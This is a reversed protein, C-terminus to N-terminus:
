PQNATYVVKNTESIVMVYKQTVGAVYGHRSAQNCLAAGGAVATWACTVNNQTHTFTVRKDNLQGFGSSHEPQNRLFRIKGTALEVIVVPQSVVTILGTGDAKICLSSGGLETRWACTVHDHTVKYTFGSTGAGASSAAVLFLAAVLILRTMGCLVTSGAESSAM